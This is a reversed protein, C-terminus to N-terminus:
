NKEPPPVETWKPPKGAGQDTASLWYQPEFTSSATVKWVEVASTPEGGKFDLAGSAGVANIARGALLEDRGLKFATPEFTVTVGSPLSLQKLGEALAEGALIQTAEPRVAWAHALMVCWTADYAHATFSQQIADVGFLQKFRNNFDDFVSEPPDGPTTGMVGELQKPNTLQAFLDTRKLFDSLLVTAKALNPHQKFGNLLKAGFSSSGILVVHDPALAEATTLAKAISADTAKAAVVTVKAGDPPNKNLVASLGDGYSNARALVVVKKAGSKQLLYSLALGQNRDSPAVRWLLPDAGTVDPSTASISMVLVNQGQVAAQIALTEDTGGSLLAAPPRPGTTVSQAIEAASLAPSATTNGADCIRLRFTRGLVGQRDNANSVAMEIARARAVGAEDDAGSATTMSLIAVLELADVGAATDVRVKCRESAFMAREPLEVACSGALSALACVLTAASGVGLRRAIRAIVM